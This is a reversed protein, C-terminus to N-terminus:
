RQHSRTLQTMHDDYIPAMITWDFQAIHERLARTDVPQHNELLATLLYKPSQGGYLYNEHLVEPLLYPYNLRDPLVPICGCYIAEAIAGGFFDQKATSIVYDTQWLLRAYATFDPLYGYQVLRDGLRQRAAEFATSTKRFNEGTIAVRFAVGADMLVHLARLFEDPNKDAEWRHNWLLLPPRTKEDNTQHPDLRKLDLGLWLVESKERIEAVTQLENYDGFHKLMNPLTELFIERHYASNFFVKDATLASTYNIFGYRWGHKQRENQPYTLQTEHFYLAIPVTHWGDPLLARLTALDLMDSALIIHPRRTARKRILRAITVAGGQM